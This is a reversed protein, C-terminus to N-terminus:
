HVVRTLAPALGSECKTNKWRREGNRPTDKNTEKGGSFLISIDLPDDWGVSAL